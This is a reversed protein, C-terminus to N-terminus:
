RGAVAALHDRLLKLASLPENLFLFAVGEVEFLCEDSETDIHETITELAFNHGQYDLATGMQISDFTGKIKAKLILKRGIIETRVVDGSKANPFPDYHLNAMSPHFGTIDSKLFEFYHPREEVRAEIIQLNNANM